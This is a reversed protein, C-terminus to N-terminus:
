LTDSASEPPEPYVEKTFREIALCRGTDVDVDVIVGCLKVSGKAVPFRTPM